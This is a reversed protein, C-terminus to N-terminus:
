QLTQDDFSIAISVNLSKNQIIFIQNWKHKNGKEAGLTNQLLYTCSGLIMHPVKFYRYLADWHNDWINKDVKQLKASSHSHKGRLQNALVTECSCFLFTTALEIKNAHM